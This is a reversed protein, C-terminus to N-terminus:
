VPQKKTGPVAGFSLMLKRLLDNLQEKEGDDLAAAIMREKEAQVGVAESWMRDGEDTLEIQLVRRDAEDPVRRVLGRRELKDLRSTMAGPTISLHQALTGATQRYPAGAARLSGLLGWDAHTLGYSAATENLSRNLLWALRQIRQVVGETPLDIQPLERGLVELKADVVDPEM